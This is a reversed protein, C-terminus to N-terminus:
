KAEIKADKIIKDYKAMEVRVYDAFQEASGGKAEFGLTALREKV